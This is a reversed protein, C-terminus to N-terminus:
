FSGSVNLGGGSAFASPSVSIRASYSEPPVGEQYAQWDREQPLRVALMLIGTLAGVAITTGGFAYGFTRDDDSLNSSAGTVFIAALGGACMSFGAVSGLMRQFHAMSADARLEGGLAAYEERSMGDAFQANYRNAREEVPATLAFLGIGQIVAAPGTAVLLWGFFSDTDLGRGVFSDDSNSVLFAGLGTSVAGLAMLTIGSFIMERRTVSARYDLLATVRSALMPDMMETSLALTTAPPAPIAVAPPPAPVEAETETALVPPPAPIPEQARVASGVFLVVVLTAAFARRNTKM